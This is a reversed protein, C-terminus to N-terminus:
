PRRSLIKVMLLSLYLIIKIMCVCEYMTNHVRARMRAHLHACKHVNKHFNVLLVANHDELYFKAM